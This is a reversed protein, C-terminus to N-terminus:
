RVEFYKCLTQILHDYNAATAENRIKGWDMKNKEAVRRALGLIHFANGDEGILELVPRKEM